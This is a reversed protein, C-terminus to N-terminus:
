MPFNNFFVLAPTSTASILAIHRRTYWLRRNGVILRRGQQENDCITPLLNGDEMDKQVDNYWVGAIGLPKASGIHREHSM